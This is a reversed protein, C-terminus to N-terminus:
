EENDNPNVVVYRAVLMALACGYYRMLFEQVGCLSFKLGRVAPLYEFVPCWLTFYHEAGKVVNKGCGDLVAAYM